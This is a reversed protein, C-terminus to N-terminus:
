FTGTLWIGDFSPTVSWQLAEDEPPDDPTDSDTSDSGPNVLFLVLTTIAGAATVGIMVDTATALKTTRRKAADITQRNGPFADLADDREKRASLALGGLVGTAIGCAGTISLAIIAPVPLADEEDASIPSDPTPTPTGSDDRRLDALELKVELDDRGAVEILRRAPAHGALTAAVRRKGINVVVPQDLPTVGVVEDDIQIEAGEVNTTVRLTGVRDTLDELVREVEKKRAPRIEDKGEDLYRRYAVLASAYDKLERSTQGLNYLVRYNPELEYARKFEVLAAVHDGDKYLKVGRRFRDSAEEHADEEAGKGDDAHAPPAATAVFLCAALLAALRSPSTSLM